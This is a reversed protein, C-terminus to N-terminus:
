NAKGYRVEKADLNITTLSIKTTKFAKNKNQQIKTM